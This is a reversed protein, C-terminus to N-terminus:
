SVFAREVVYHGPVSLSGEQFGSADLLRATDRLMATSGCIMIRDREIALPSVGPDSFLAGSEILDTIRGQHEFPERTVSPYYILKERVQEGLFEHDPLTRTIYDRYALERVHRCTHTLVIREYRDYVDPDRIVSMFPALGTGTSLPWLVHGPRLNDVILTGSSRTGILLEDGEELHQLRSTLPGDPVKISFFELEDEYNASAISYARMLPRGDVPLGVMTFQGNDFRFARDRTCTFSFLTDTWHRVKTVTQIQTTAM